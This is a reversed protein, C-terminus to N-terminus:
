VNLAGELELSIVAGSNTPPLNNQYVIDQGGPGRGYGGGPDQLRPTRARDTKQGEGAREWKCFPRPSSEGPGLNLRRFLWFVM